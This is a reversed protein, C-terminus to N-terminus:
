NTITLLGYKVFAKYIGDKSVADCVEDAIAKMAQSGNEMCVSMGVVDMMEKDNMSDGFGISNELPIGMYECVRRVGIGKDFCKSQMEGNIIGNGTRDQIVINFESELQSVANQLGDEDTALLVIKYIPEGQYEKMPRIGLASEIQRRWRLLESNGPVDRNAELYEKFGEDTYSFEKGEITFFVGNSRLLNLVRDQTQRDMPCDFIVSDGCVVYGGSSSVYGDFGYTLLPALMGRSRGSCLFVLHGNAQAGRIADLASEPPTNSGPETLTGDIDLFIIKRNDKM